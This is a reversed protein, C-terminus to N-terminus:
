VKKKEAIRQIIKMADRTISAVFIMADGSSIPIINDSYFSGEQCGVTCTYFKGKQTVCLYIPNEAQLNVCIVEDGNMM